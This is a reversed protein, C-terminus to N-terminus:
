NNLLEKIKEIDERIALNLIKININYENFSNYYKAVEILHGITNHQCKGWYILLNTPENLFRGMILFINIILYSKTFNDLKDYSINNTNNWIKRAVIEANNYDVYSSKLCFIDINNCEIDKYTQTPIFIEKKTNFYNHAKLFEKESATSGKTRLIYGKKSLFNSIFSMLYLIEQPVDNTGIGVYIM